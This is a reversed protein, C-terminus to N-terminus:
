IEKETEKSCTTAPHTPTCTPCFRMLGALNQDPGNLDFPEGTVGMCM